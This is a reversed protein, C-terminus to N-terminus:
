YDWIGLLFTKPGGGGVVVCTGSNIVQEAALSRKYGECKRLEPEVSKLM